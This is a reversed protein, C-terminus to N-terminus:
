YYGGFIIEEKESEVRIKDKYKEIADWSINSVKRDIWFKALEAIDIVDNIGFQEEYEKEILEWAKSGPLPALSSYEIVCTNSLKMVELIQRYTKELSNETEGLAGPVYCGYIQIGAENLLNSAEINQSPTVNKKKIGNRLMILDGSDFGFIVRHVNLHKFCEIVEGDIEDARAYVMMQFQDKIGEPITETLRKLYSGKSKREGVRNLFSFSNCTEFFYNFGNEIHSSIRQWYLSPELLEIKHDKLCCYICPEINGQLCGNVYNINISKIEKGNNHFNNFIRNYSKFYPTFDKIFSIDPEEREELGPYEKRTSNTIFTGSRKYALSLINEFRYNENLANILESFVFEGRKGEIIFDVDDVAFDSNETCMKYLYNAHHNGIVTYAGAEKAKSLIKKGNAYNGTLVSVGVVDANTNKVNLLIENLSTISGDIVEIHLYPFQKKLYGAISLIGNPVFSNEMGVGCVTSPPFILQIKTVKPM